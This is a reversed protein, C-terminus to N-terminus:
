EESEGGEEMAAEEPIREASVVRLAAADSYPYGEPPAGYAGDSLIRFIVGDSERRICAHFSLCIDTGTVVTWTEQPMPRDGIVAAEAKRRFVAASFVSGPVWTHISGGRGDPLYEETLHRFEAAAAKWLTM